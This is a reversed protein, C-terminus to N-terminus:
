TLKYFEVLRLPFKFDPSFVIDKFQKLSESDSLAELNPLRPCHAQTKLYSGERRKGLRDWSPEPRVPAPLQSNHPGKVSM